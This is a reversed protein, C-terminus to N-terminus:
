VLAGNRYDSVAQRIEDATNMVFPGYAAVPEDIPRGSFLAARFPTAAEVPLVDTGEDPGSPDLWAVQGAKVETGAAGIRGSGELVYLFGREDAPIDLACAAGPDLRITKLSMPYSSGHAQAVEGQRGAYVRIESGEGKIVPADAARQDAYRAPSMKREAPLNLWLQLSHVGDPGPMESHLVGKGATMWQVDGESLLGQGGTHDRHELAGELVVTVTEMGRHPHTPFGAPPAFWDEMMMLFPSHAPFNEAPVVFRNAHTPAGRSPPAAAEIRTVNRDM